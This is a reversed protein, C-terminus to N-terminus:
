RGGVAGKYYTGKCDGAPQPPPIIDVAASAVNALGQWCLQPTLFQDPRGGSPGVAGRGGQPTPALPACCLVHARSTARQPHRPSGPPWLWALGVGVCSPSCTCVQRENALAETGRAVGCRVCWGFTVTLTAARRPCAGTNGCMPIDVVVRTRAYACVSACAHVCMCARLCGRVCAWVRM